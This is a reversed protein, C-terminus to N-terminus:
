FIKQNFLIDAQVSSLFIIGDGESIREWGITRNTGYRLADPLLHRARVMIDSM